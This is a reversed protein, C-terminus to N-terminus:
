EIAQTIQESESNSLKKSSNVFSHMSSQKESSEIAKTESLHKLCIHNLMNTTGGTYTLETSCLSCKVTKGDVSCKFNRWANSKPPM